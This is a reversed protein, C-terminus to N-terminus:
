HAHPDVEPITVLARRKRKAGCGLGLGSRFRQCIGKRGVSPTGAGGSRTSIKESQRSDISARGADISVLRVIESTVLRLVRAAIGGRGSSAVAIRGFV